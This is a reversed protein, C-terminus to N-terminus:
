SDCIWATGNWRMTLTLTPCGFQTCPRYTGAAWVENASVITLGYLESVAGVNPSPVVSWTTGNWHATLTREICGQCDAQAGVAWVDNANVTRVEYLINDPSPIPSPIVTWNQGNWYLILAHFGSNGVAWVDNSAVATIGYLADSGGINHSPVVSWSTGNWHETLTLTARGSYYYGAAWADNAAIATVSLLQDSTIGANPSPVPLKQRSNFLYASV